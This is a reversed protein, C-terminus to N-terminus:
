TSVLGSFLGEFHATPMHFAAPGMKGIHFPLITV